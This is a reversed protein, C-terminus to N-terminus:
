VQLCVRERCSARGIEDELGTLVQDVGQAGLFSMARGISGADDRLSVSLATQLAVPGSDLTATIRMVSVGMSTEGAALAREIPAAGKYAPLLSGHVNICTLSELLTNRLMQGFASVVLVEAGAAQLVEMVDPANIDPPQILELGLRRAAVAAPPAAARRGRGVPRTPQSIVLSPRRGLSVLHELTRAAFDPSGAFAFNVHL